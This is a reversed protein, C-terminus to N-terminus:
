PLSGSDARRIRGRKQEIRRAIAVYRPGGRVYWSCIKRVVPHPECRLAHELAPLAAASRHVAEGVMGAAMQRVRRSPDELLMKAAIPVIHDEGPRCAGEKCRDCALAHLAWARVQEDPHTLNAILEPLAADDMHHDLVKCCGVRVAPDPHRLGTRVVPAASGGAAMLRRLAESAHHPVGLADVDTRYRALMEDSAAAAQIAEVEPSSISEM